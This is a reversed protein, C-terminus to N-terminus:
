TEEQFYPWAFVASAALNYTRVNGFNAPDVHTPKVRWADAGAEVECRECHPRSQDVPFDDKTRFIYEGCLTPIPQRENVGYILGVQNVIHLPETM